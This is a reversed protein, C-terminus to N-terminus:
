DNQVMSRFQRPTVGCVRGFARSFDTQHRYGLASAIDRHTLNTSKLLEQAREIRSQELLISFSTNQAALYRQLSRTSVGLWHAVDDVHINGLEIRNHIVTKTAMEFTRPASNVTDSDTNEYIPAIRDLGPANPLLHNPVPIALGPSNFRINIDQLLEVDQLRGDDISQLQVTEPLWNAGATYRITDIMAGLRYLEVQRVTERGGKVTGCHIWCDNDDRILRFLASTDEMHIRSCISQLSQFLTPEFLTKRSFSSHQVRPLMAATLGLEWYGHERIIEEIFADLQAFPMWNGAKLEVNHLVAASLSRGTSLGSNELVQLL